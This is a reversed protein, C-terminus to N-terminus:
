FHPNKSVLKQLSPTKKKEVKKTKAPAGNKPKDKEIKM